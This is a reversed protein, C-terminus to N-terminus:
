PSVSVQGPRGVCGGVPVVAARSRQWTPCSAQVKFLISYPQNSQFPPDLYILDVPEDPVHQRLLPLSDGNDLPNGNV